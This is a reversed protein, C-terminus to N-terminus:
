RLGKIVHIAIQMGSKQSNYILRLTDQDPKTEQISKEIYQITSEISSIMKDTKEIMNM